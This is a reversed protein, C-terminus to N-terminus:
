FPGPASRDQSKMEQLVFTVCPGKRGRVGYVWTRATWGERLTDGAYFALM